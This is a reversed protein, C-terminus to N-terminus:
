LDGYAAEDAESSWEGFAVFPDEEERPAEKELRVGSADFVYRLRDGPGVGLRERVERPLVTQSKVSVKSYVAKHVSKM